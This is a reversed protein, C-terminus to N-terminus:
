EKDEKPPGGIFAWHTVPYDDDVEVDHWSSEDIHALHVVSGYSRGWFWEEVDDERSGFGVYGDYHILVM